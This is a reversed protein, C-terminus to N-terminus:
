SEPTGPSARRLSPEATLAWTLYVLVIFVCGLWAGTYGFLALNVGALLPGAVRGWSSASSTTGLMRGRFVAPIRYSTITNLLPMCLSAGSMALFIASLMWGTTRAFVALALGCLFILICIRLLRWEGVFRVLVGLLGGQLLVIIAGQVGFVMGVERARWDLLDGLWLPVLYTLSSVAAAHLLFQFVLMRNGTERLMTFLPQGSGDRHQRHSAARREATVSEPLFLAAAIIALLSMLGAVLCPLTFSGNDGALVGGLLPGLMLGLGFAAGILGMGRARNEPPTLDSMMASAVGLNGAMVGAFARAAFIMWLVSAMALLGYSVAAGALCIMIVPKRGLRDSLRGWFPGSIGACAAYTVIILAIDIKDAGLEPSMFPLIPIVIGFGILDLLIVGFLIPM